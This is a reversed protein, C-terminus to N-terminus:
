GRAADPRSFSLRDTQDPEDDDLAAMQDALARLASEAVPHRPAADRVRATAPADMMAIPRATLLQATREAFLKLRPGHEGAIEFARAIQGTGLHLDACATDSMQLIFARRQLPTIQGADALASLADLLSTPPIQSGSRQLIAEIAADGATEPLARLADVFPAAETRARALQASLAQSDQDHSAGLRANMALLDATAKDLFADMEPSSAAPNWLLRALPVSMLSMLPPVWVPVTALAGIMIGGIGRGIGFCLSVLVVQVLLLGVFTVLVKASMWDALNAPLTAPRMVVLWLLFILTFVPIMQWDYGALGAVLPGMYLLASAVLFLRHRMTLSM